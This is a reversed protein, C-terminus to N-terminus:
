RGKGRGKKGRERKRGRKRENRGRGRERGVGKRRRIKDREKKGILIWTRIRTWIWSRTGRKREGRRRRFERGITMAMTGTGFLLM